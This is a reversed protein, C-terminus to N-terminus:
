IVSKCATVRCGVESRVSVLWDTVLPVDAGPCTEGTGRPRTSAWAAQRTGSDVDESILHGARVEPVTAYPPDDEIIHREGSDLTVLFWVFQQNGFPRGAGWGLEVLTTLHGVVDGDRVLEAAGRDLLEVTEPELRDNNNANRGYGTMTVSLPQERNSWGVWSSPARVRQNVAM